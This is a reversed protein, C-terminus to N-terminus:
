DQVEENWVIDWSKVFASLFGSNQAKARFEATLDGFGAQEMEEDTVNPSPPRQNNLM